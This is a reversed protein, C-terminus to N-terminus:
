SLQKMAVDGSVRDNPKKVRVTDTLPARDKSSTNALTQVDTVHDFGPKSAKVKYTGPEPLFSFRGDYDSLRTSVVKSSVPDILQVTTLPLIANSAFEYVVGWAKLLKPRLKLQASLLGLYILMLVLNIANPVTFVSVISIILGVFLFPVVFHSGASQLSMWAKKALGAVQRARKVNVPDMPVDPLAMGQATVTIPMSPQFVRLREGDTATTVIQSPFQYMPKAAEVTYTGPELLADYRGFKDTVSTTVLKKQEGDVKYVRVITLPLPQKAISDYVVGFSRGAKKRKILGFGALLFHYFLVPAYPLYGWLPVSSIIVLPATVSLTTQIPTQALEVQEQIAQVSSVLGIDSVFTLFGSIIQGAEATTATTGPQTPTPTTPTTPTTPVTPSTPSSPASPSTPTTPSTPPTTPAPVPAPPMPAPAAPPLLALDPTVTVASSTSVDATENASVSAQLIFSPNAAAQVAATLSRLHTVNFRLHTSIHVMGGVALRPWIVSLVGNQLQAMDQDAAVSQVTGDVITTGPVVLLGTPVPLRLFVNSADGGGSNSITISVLLDKTPDLPESTIAGDDVLSVTLSAELKPENEALTSTSVFPSWDTEVGAQNRTHVRISYSHGLELNAFTYSSGQLWPSSTTAAASITDILEFQVGSQGQDLNPLAENIEVTISGMDRSVVHTTAAPMFTAVSEFTASPDSAGADNYARVYRGTYVTNPLLGTEDLFSLDPQTVDLLLADQSDFLRFGTENSATDTFNWRIATDGALGVGATPASPALRGPASGGGGGGGGAVISFLNDSDDSDNLGGPDYAIIEVRAMTTAGAPVTWSFIGGPSFKQVRDLDAVFIRGSADSAIGIASSFEGDAAGSTGWQMRYAGNSTFRQIRNNGTDSVFVRNLSDIAIGYPNSFQGNGTGSSGWQVLYNGVEDFKQVRDNGNDVVYIHGATDSAIGRPFTFQGNGTGAGGWQVVFSGASTFKQVRNNNTDGAYVFDSPDIALGSLGSFQGSGSGNTGWFTISVGASTYKHINSSGTLAVYVNDASDIAIASPFSGVGTSWETIYVGSPSFKEVRGNPYDAVYVNGASDVAVGYAQGFQGAGNGATGWDLLFPYALGNVLGTGGIVPNYNNDDITYSLDVTDIDLSNDTAFWIIDYSSGVVLSEGGNPQVVTVSPATLDGFLVSITDAIRNCAVIDLANDGNIDTATVGFAGAGSPYTVAPLLVGAGNNLLVALTHGDYSSTVIDIDGDTDFDGSALRFPSAGVGYDVESGFVGSGNNSLVSVTNDAQNITVLDLDNDGNLDVALVQWPWTGTSYDVKAAFVGAGNNLFVSVDSSQQNPAIIDLDGDADLDGLDLIAPGDNAAYDVRAAFTGNGNNLFVSVNDDTANSAVIDLFGDGNVDGAAVGTIDQGAAYDVKAAFAGSGNNIFISLNDSITSAVAVDAFGDNTFDAAAVGTPGSGTVYPVRPEFTGAGVGFFVGLSNGNIETVVVDINGDNDFDASDIDNPDVGTMTIQPPTFTGRGNAAAVVFTGTFPETLTTAVASQVGTTVVYQVQEGPKLVMGPDFTVTDDVFTTTSFTYAGNMRELYNSFFPMTTTSFTGTNLSQDFVIVLNDNNNVDLANQAPTVSVISLPTTIGVNLLVSVNSSGSNAAAIDDSGDNDFDGTAVAFPSTGVGYNVAADLTGDGNGTLVTIFNTTLTTILDPNGDNNVDGATMLKGGTTTPYNTSAGFTGDGVGLLVSVASVNENSVALDLKGDKNLDVTVLGFPDNGAAYTVGAAFTGDGVGILVSITDDLGNDVALDPKGDRNFDGVVVVRPGNGIAYNVAAAFSGAGNGLLISVDLSTQNGIALDMDGDRNFDGTALAFVGNNGTFNTASGFTLDGNGLLLSVNNSGLNSAVIDLDGDNNFDAIVLRNPSSGVTYNTASGFTGDGVGSLISINSVGANAVALDQKGNHNFDASFVFAPTSGVSYNVAANFTGGVTNTGTNIFVEAADISIDVTAFDGDGDQDLDAAIVGTDSSSAGSITTGAGFTGDGANLLFAAHASSPNSNSMVVDLDYDNDIDYLAVSAPAFGGPAAYAVASAFTGNGNNMLVQMNAGNTTVLVLDQDGDTDVDGSEVGFPSDGAAYTVAAAFTGDGVGLFVSTTDSSPNATALDIDGDQDFDAGRVFEPDGSASYHVAAAFTGAGNNLLVSINNQSRNASVVDIDGDDDFDAAFMGHPGNPSVSYNVAAAFTGNGNNLLISVNTSSANGVALDLYGDKNVDAAFVGYPSSGVTYNVAAAYTGSGNNLLVSINGSNLNTLVLDVDGDNDFDGNHIHRPTSGVGYTVGTAFSAAAASVSAQAQSASDNQEQWFWFSGGILSVSLLSLIYARIRSRSPMSSCLFYVM